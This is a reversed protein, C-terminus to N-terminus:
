AGLPSYRRAAGLTEASSSCVRAEATQPLSVIVLDIRSARAFAVLEDINGLKPYGAVYPSVREPGRDDFIGAIRIDTEHSAELAKILEEAEAGGGVIVARRNLRGEKTWRRALVSFALRESFLASLTAVYWSAIWFRSFDAGVKVFFLLALLGAIVLTWALAVRAFSRVFASFAAVKYLDFAQLLLSYAIQPALSSPSTSSIRRAAKANSM